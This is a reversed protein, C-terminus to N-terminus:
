EDGVVKHSRWRMPAVGRADAIATLVPAEIEDEGAKVASLFNM